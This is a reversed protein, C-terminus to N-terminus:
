GSWRAEAPRPGRVGVRGRAPGAADAARRRVKLGGPLVGTTRSGREVCEQMVQWIALLDRRVEDEPRRVVENALMVDSIRLGTARTIALLEDATTFPHPVPTEDAVLLRNGFDDEGLM